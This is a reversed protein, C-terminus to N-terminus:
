MPPWSMNCISGEDLVLLWYWSMSLPGFGFFTVSVCMVLLAVIPGVKWTTNSISPARAIQVFLGPWYPSMRLLRQDMLSVRSSSYKVVRVIVPWM